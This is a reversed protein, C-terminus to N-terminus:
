GFFIILFRYHSSKVLCIRWRKQYASFPNRNSMPHAECILIVCPTNRKAYRRRAVPVYGCASLRPETLVCGISFPCAGRSHLVHKHRWGSVQLERIPFCILIQRGRSGRCCLSNMMVLCAVKPLFGKESFASCSSVSVLSEDRSPCRMAARLLMADTGVRVTDAGVGLAM